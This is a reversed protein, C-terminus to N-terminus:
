YLIKPDLKELWMEKLTEIDDNFEKSTQTEKKDLEELVQLEFVEKGFEIWDKEIRKDISVNTIKAFEFRNKYGQLNAVASLLLKGNASNKVACIGGTVKREKYMSQLEKKKQNDM